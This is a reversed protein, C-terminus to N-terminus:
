LVSPPEVHADAVIGTPIPGTSEIEHLSLELQRAVVNPPALLAFVLSTSTVVSPPCVQAVATAPPIADENNVDTEHAVVEYQQADPTTTGSPILRGIV